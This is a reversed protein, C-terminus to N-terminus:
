EHAAVEKQEPRKTFLLILKDKLATLLGLIGSPAFRVILIMAVGYIVSALSAYDAGFRTRFVENILGLTVAGCLPGWLTGIGGIVCYIMIELSLPYGLVKAPQCTMLSFVYVSGGFSLLAASLLQARMKYQPVDVGITSAAGANTKIAALYYGMKSRRVTNSIILAVVLMILAMYYYGSRTSFQMDRFQGTYRLLLGLGGNTKLGFISNFGLFIFRVIHLFAVTSLSFYTGSLRFCPKSILYAMIVSVFIGILAGLWPTIGVQTYMLAASYAGLGIYVGNGMAFQGAYGGILNWASAWYCYILITFAVTLYYDARFVLPFCLALVLLVAPMILARNPTNPFFNKKM